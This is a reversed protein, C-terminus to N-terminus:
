RKLGLIKYHDPNDSPGQGITISMGTKQSRTTFQSHVEFHGCALEFYPGKAFCSPIKFQYSVDRFLRSITWIVCGHLSPGFHEQKRCDLGSPQLEGWVDNAM